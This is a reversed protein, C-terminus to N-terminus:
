WGVSLSTQKKPKWLHHHKWIVSQDPIIDLNNIKDLLKFIM